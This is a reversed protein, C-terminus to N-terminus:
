SKEDTFLEGKKNEMAHEFLKGDAFGSILSRARQRGIVFLVDRCLDISEYM